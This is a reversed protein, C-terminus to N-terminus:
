RVSLPMDTSEPIIPTSRQGYYDTFIAGVNAIRDISPTRYGMMGRNCASINWYGVDDAMIALINPKQQQASTPTVAAM